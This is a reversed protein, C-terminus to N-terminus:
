VTRSWICLHTCFTTTRTSVVIAKFPLLTTSFSHGKHRSFCNIESNKAVNTRSTVFNNFTIYPKYIYIHTHTSISHRIFDDTARAIFHNSFPSSSFTNYSPHRWLEIIIKSNSPLVQPSSCFLLDHVYFRINHCTRTINIGRWSGLSGSVM